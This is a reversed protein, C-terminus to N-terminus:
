QPEANRDLSSWLVWQLWSTPKFDSAFSFLSVGFARDCLSRFPECSCFVPRPTPLSLLPHPPSLSLPLPSSHSLSLPPSPSLPLPLSSLSLPSSLPSLSWGFVLSRFVFFPASCLMPPPSTLVEDSVDDRTERERERMDEEGRLGGREEAALRVREDTHSQMM